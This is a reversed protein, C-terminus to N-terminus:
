FALWIFYSYFLKHFIITVHYVLGLFINFEEPQQISIFSDIDFFKQFTIEYYKIWVHKGVNLTFILSWFLLHLFSIPVIPHAFTSDRFIWRDFILMCATVFFQEHIIACYSGLLVFVFLLSSFFCLPFCKELLFQLNHSAELLFIRLYFKSKPIVIFLKFCVFLSHIFASCGIEVRIKGQKWKKVFFIRFAENMLLHGAYSLMWWSVM